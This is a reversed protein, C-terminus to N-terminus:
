ITWEPTVEDVGDTISLELQHVEEDTLVKIGREDLM